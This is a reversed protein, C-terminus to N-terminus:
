GKSRIHPTVGPLSVVTGYSERTVPEGGHLKGVGKVVENEQGPRFLTKDYQSAVPRHEGVSPNFVSDLHGDKMNPM